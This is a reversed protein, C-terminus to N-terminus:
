PEQYAAYYNEKELVTVKFTRPFLKKVKTYIYFALNETTPYEFIDNLAAGHLKANIQNLAAEVLRFDALYGETNLPGKLTVEYKFDHSHSAESLTKDHWHSATFASAVTVTFIEAM